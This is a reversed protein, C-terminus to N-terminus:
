VGSLRREVAFDGLAVAVTRLTPGAVLTDDFADDGPNSAEM